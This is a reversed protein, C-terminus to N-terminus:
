TRGKHYAYRLLYDWKSRAATGRQPKRQNAKKEENTALKLNSLRNDHRWQNVHDLSTGEPIKGNIQLWIWDHIPVREYMVQGENTIFMGNADLKPRYGVIYPLNGMADYHAIFNSYQWSEIL